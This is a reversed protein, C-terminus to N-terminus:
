VGGEDEDEEPDPEPAPEPHVEPEPEPKSEIEPAPQEEIKQTPEPEPKTEEHPVEVAPEKGPEPEPETTEESSDEVPKTKPAHIKEQVVLEDVKVGMARAIKSITTISPLMIGREYKSIESASIGSSYAVDELTLDRDRRLRRMRLKVPPTRQPM